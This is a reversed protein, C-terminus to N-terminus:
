KTQCSQVVEMVGYVEVAFGKGCDVVQEEDFKYKNLKAIYEDRTCSGKIRFPAVGYYDVSITENGNLMTVARDPKSKNFKTM